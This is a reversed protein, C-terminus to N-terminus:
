FIFYNVHVTHYMHVIFSLTLSILLFRVITGLKAVPSNFLDVSDLNTSVDVYAMLMELDMAYALPLFLATVSREEEEKTHCREYKINTKLNLWLNILENKNCCTILKKQGEFM